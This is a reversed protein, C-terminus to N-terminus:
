SILGQVANIGQSAHWTSTSRGDLRVKDTDQFRDDTNPVGTVRRWVVDLGRRCHVLVPAERHRADMGSGLIPECAVPMTILARKARVNATARAVLCASAVWKRCPCIEHDLAEADDEVTM